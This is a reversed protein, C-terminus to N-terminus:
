EEGGTGSRPESGAYPAYTRFYSRWLEPVWPRGEQEGILGYGALVIAARDRAGGHQEVVERAREAPADSLAEVLALSEPFRVHLLTEVEGCITQVADRRWSLEAAEDRLADTEVPRPRSPPAYALEFLASGYERLLLPHGGTWRWATERTAAGVDLGTRKGLRVLLEDAEDRRLPGLWTPEVWGLLPSTFGGLHPRQVFVPDRGIFALSIRGTAHSLSRLLAFLRQVDPIGPEGGYGEFLLDYEDLIFVIPRPQAGLALRLLREMEEMWDRAPTDDGERDDDEPAAAGRVGALALRAGLERALAEALGQVTREHLAQVDFSVILAEADVGPVPRDLLGFMGREAGVPDIREAVARLLSSKGVKRLGLVAVAQGGLLRAVIHDIRERRGVLARGRIPDLRHFLDFRPLHDRLADAFPVFGGPDPSWPIRQGWPGALQRIKEHLVPWDSAVVILDPDVNAADLPDTLALRLDQGRVQGHVAVLRIEPSVGFREQLAAPVDAQLAWTTGADLPRFRLRTLGDEDLRHLLAAGWPIAQLFAQRLQAQRASEPAPEAAALPLGLAAALDQLMRPFAHERQEPRTTTLDAWQALDRLAEELDGGAARVLPVLKTPEIGNQWLYWCAEALMGPEGAIPPITAALAPTIDNAFLAPVFAFCLPVLNRSTNGVLDHPCTLWLRRAAAYIRFFMQRPAADDGGDERTRGHWNAAVHLGVRVLFASEIGLDYDDYEFRHHARRRQSELRDYTRRYAEAPEVVRAWLFGLRQAVVAGVDDRSILRLGPDRGELLELLWEWLRQLDGDSSPDAGLMMAAGFLYPLGRGYLRRAGEGQRDTKKPPLRRHVTRKGLRGTEVARDRDEAMLWARRIDDVVMGAERMSVVLAELGCDLVSWQDDDAVRPVSGQSTLAKTAIYPLYNAAIFAGDPRQLLIAFAKCMWKPLEDVRARHRTDVAEAYRPTDSSGAVKLDWITRSLAGDLRQAHEAILETALLAAVSHSSLWAGSEDFVRPAAILMAEIIGRDEGLHYGKRLAREMMGPFPLADLAQLGRPPDIRILLNVPLLVNDDWYHLRSSMHGWVAVARRESKWNDAAAILAQAEGRLMELSALDAAYREVERQLMEAWENQRTRDERISAVVEEQFSHWWSIRTDRLEAEAQAITVLSAPATAVARARTRIREIDDSTAMRHVLQNPQDFRPDRM